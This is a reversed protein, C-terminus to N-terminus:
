DEYVEKIAPQKIMKAGIDHMRLHLKLMTKIARLSKVKGSQTFKSLQGIKKYEWNVGSANCVNNVIEIKM